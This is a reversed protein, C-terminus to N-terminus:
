PCVNIISINQIVSVPYPPVLIFPDNMFDTVIYNDAVVIHTIVPNIM